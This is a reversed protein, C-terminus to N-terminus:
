KDIKEDAKMCFEENKTTVEKTFHREFNKDITKEFNHRKEEQKCPNLNIKRIEKSM